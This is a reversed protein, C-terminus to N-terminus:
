KRMFREASQERLRRVPVEASEPFAEMEPTTVL